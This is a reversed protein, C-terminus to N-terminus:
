DHSGSCPHLFDENPMFATPTLLAEAASRVKINYIPHINKMTDMVVKRVQLFWWSEFSVETSVCHRLGERVFAGNNTTGGEPRRLTGAGVGHQGAGDRLLQDAAGVGASMFFPFNLGLLLM